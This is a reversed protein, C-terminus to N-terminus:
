WRIGERILEAIFDQEPMNAKLSNCTICALRYNSAIDRGGKSQPVAHDLTAFFAEGIKYSANNRGIPELTTM